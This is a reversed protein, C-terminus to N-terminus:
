ATRRGAARGPATAREEMERAFRRRYCRGNPGPDTSLVIRTDDTTEWIPGRAYRVDGRRLRPTRGRRSLLMAAAGALTLASLTAAILNRITDPEGPVASAAIALPALTAAAPSLHSTERSLNGVVRTTAQQPAPMSRAPPFEPWRSAVITPAANETSSLVQPIEKPAAAPASFPAANDQNSRTRIEAHAEIPSPQVRSASTEAQPRINRPTTQSLSDGEQRLYWCNRKTAHDVRYYWHYGTPTEGKPTSLCRDSGITEGHSATAFLIGAFLNVVAAALKATRKPM